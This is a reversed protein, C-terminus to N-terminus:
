KNKVNNIKKCWEIFGTSKELCFSSDLQDKAIDLVTLEIESLQEVYQRLLHTDENLRTNEDM